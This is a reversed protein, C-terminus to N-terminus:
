ADAYAHALGPIDWGARTAGAQYASDMFDLLAQAPNDASRMQDYALIAMAGGNKEVWLARDPKLPADKLGPPEPYTYSYFAPAPATDDGPWFGFSIVEHSYAERDSQTRANELPAARGSFRTLVLDFSHWYLHVPTSKGAFRGRYIEMITSAASIVQWFRHVADTDYAAHETDNGFPVTSKNDYPEALIPVDIGLRHLTEILATYFTAVSQGPIDFSELDGDSTTIVVRHDIVDLLIEFSGNGYPIRGTTLGRVSPYLTVHWWHNLKPHAKLRIKGIIQCFLHLTEKTSVWEDYPLPPLPPAQKAELPM